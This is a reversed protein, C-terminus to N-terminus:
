QPADLKHRGSDPGKDTLTVTLPSRLTFSLVTESPL